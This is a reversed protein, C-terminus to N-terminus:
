SKKSFLNKDEEDLSLNKDSKSFNYEIEKDTFGMNRLKEILALKEARIKMAELGKDEMIKETDMM